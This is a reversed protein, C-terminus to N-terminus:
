ALHVEGEDVLGGHDGLSSKVEHADAGLRNDLAARSFVSPQLPREATHVGDKDDVTWSGGTPAAGIHIGWGALSPCVGDLPVVGPGVEVGRDLEFLHPALLAVNLCREPSDEAVDRLTVDNFCIPLHQKMGHAALPCDVEM